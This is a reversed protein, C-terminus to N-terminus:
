NTHLIRPNTVHPIVRLRAASSNSNSRAEDVNSLNEDLTFRRAVTVGHGSIFAAPFYPLLPPENISTLDLVAVGDGNAGTIALLVNDKGDGVLADYNPSLTFPLALRNRLTGLRGDFIDVGSTSPQFLLTGDPSLKTGYVYSIDLVERDNLNLLSEANLDSDYLYGTAGFQTQNKSLTLDYDGYCCGPDTSASFVKDTATDINFVYGDNNFYVRTNDASIATRLYPDEPTGTATDYLQPGTISYDTIKGTNTDLKFYSSYGTGGQVFTTYYVIGADSVALGVPNAIVGSPGPSPIPFTSVTAPTSPDLVYIVDANIDSVALKTGNPSLALAWLRQIKGVPGPIAIPALWTGQSKSFVQVKMKDTFYYLDRTPDYIGQALMAGALPFQQAMPVYSLSGHATATGSSTTVIVDVANSATGPPITYYVAQLLFPPSLLNYAGPNFGLITAPRGGITVELDGPITPTASVPGFGYGYIIGTGGGDATASDPTVQLISPGYSFGEPVIQVGGDNAFAFVDVPGPTGSPTTALINHGNNSVSSAANPGFFIQSQSNLTALASWQIQTGGSAPGTAPTLYANTFQTGVPGTQIASSDIFGFGEEMPGALLGTGDTAGFDPGSIPGVAGGGSTSEVVLNPMWGIQQHSAVDYAYIITSSPVFLTKSDASFLFGSASSTDGGVNFQAVVKLTHGDYLVAQDPYATLAIFKGDPSTIIKSTSFTGVASVYTDKGTSVNVECLTVDSDISGIIIGNRDATRSFGGINGMTAGCVTTAPVGSRQQGAGYASTYIAISNDVPNWVSFSTSGDVSPIGGQAGLLAVRGDALVQASFAHYGYPGIQSAIYRQKVKMAIPDITYVDGTVTGVYMTSHDPTEDIGFAGPVPISSIEKESASDLVIVQGSGPDTVFFRLTPPHFVTWHTNLWQYYEITADTRVYRTRFSAIKAPPPSPPPNQTGGGAASGACGWCAALFLNALVLLLASHRVEVGASYRSRTM